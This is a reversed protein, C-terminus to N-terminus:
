INKYRDRDSENWKELATRVKITLGGWYKIRKNNIHFKKRCLQITALHENCLEIAQRQKRFREEKRRPQRGVNIENATYALMHIQYAQERVKNILSDQRMILIRTYSGDGNRRTTEAYEPFKKANDTIQYVYDCLDMALVTPTFTNPKYGGEHIMM